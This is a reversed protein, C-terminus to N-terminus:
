GGVGRQKREVRNHERMWLRKAVRLRVRRCDPCFTAGPEDLKALCAACYRPDLRQEILPLDQPLVAAALTFGKSMAM